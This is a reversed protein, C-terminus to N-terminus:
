VSTCEGIILGGSDSALHHDHFGRISSSIRVKLLSLYGLEVSAIRNFEARDVDIKDCLYTVCTCGNEGVFFCLEEKYRRDPLDVDLLLNILLTVEDYLM